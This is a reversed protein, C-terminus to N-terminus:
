WYPQKRRRREEGVSVQGPCLRNKRYIAAPFARGIASCISWLERTSPRMDKDVFTVGRAESTDRNGDDLVGIALQIAPEGLVFDDVVNVAASVNETDCQPLHTSRRSACLSPERHVDSIVGINLPM